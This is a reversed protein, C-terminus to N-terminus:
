PLGATAQVTELPVTQFYQQQFQEEQVAQLFTQLRQNADATPEADTRQVRLRDEAVQFAFGWSELTQIGLELTRRSLSLKQQLQQYTVAQGTRALYKAVGVWQEWCTAAASTAKETGDITAVGRDAVQQEDVIAIPLGYSMAAQKGQEQAQQLDVGLQDWSLPCQDVVAVSESSRNLPCAQRWDLIQLMERSEAESQAASRVAILRVEYPSQQKQGRYSNFDLEVIVDCNGPPVEDRYHGWWLGPFGQAATDDWLEFETKIYQVKNGKRDKINRNWVSEFWCNEILLKPVPNGMGCPELLKLEKFLAQGGERELDAVTLTLDVQVTPPPLIQFRQRFQQNIAETFLPINGVELSMGAAFPHGGFSRLLSAQEKVLEYLDIQSVSRASGRAIDDGMLGDTSLLITPRGYTQAIQGAVLGLVGLPWQPDSLVIVQTTSLDLQEL